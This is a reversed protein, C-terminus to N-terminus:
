DALHPFIRRPRRVLLLFRRSRSAHSLGRTARIHCSGAPPHWGLCRDYGLFTGQGANWHHLPRRSDFECSWSPLSRGATRRGAAAWTLAHEGTM